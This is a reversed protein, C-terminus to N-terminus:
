KHITGVRTTTSNVYALLLTRNWGLIQSQNLGGAKGMCKCPLQACTPWQPRRELTAKGSVVPGKCMLRIEPGENPVEQHISTM